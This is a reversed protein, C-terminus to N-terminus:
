EYNERWSNDLFYEPSKKHNYQSTNIKIMKLAELQHSYKTITKNGVGFKKAMSAVTEHMTITQHRDVSLFEFFDIQM